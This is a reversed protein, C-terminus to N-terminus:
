GRTPARKLIFGLSILMSAGHVSSSPLGSSALTNLAKFTLKGLWILGTVRKYPCTEFYFRIFDVHKGWSSIFEPTWLPCQGMQSLNLAVLHTDVLGLRKFTQAGDAICLRLHEVCQLDVLRDFHAFSGTTTTFFYPSRYLDVVQTM